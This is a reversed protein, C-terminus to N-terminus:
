FIPRVMRSRALLLFGLIGMAGTAPEPVIMIGDFSASSIVQDDSSSALSLTYQGPAPPTWMIQRWGSTWFLPEWYHGTRRDLSSPSLRFITAGDIRVQLNDFDFAPLLEETDFKVWLSLSQGEALSFERSLVVTYDRDMFVYPDGNPATFPRHQYHGVGALKLFCDGEPATGNSVFRVRETIYPNTLSDFPYIKPTYVAENLGDRYQWAGSGGAYEATFTWGDYNGSEFGDILIDSKALQVFVTPLVVALAFAIKKM